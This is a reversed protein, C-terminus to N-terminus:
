KAGMKKATERKLETLIDSAATFTCMTTIDSANEHMAPEEAGEGGNSLM